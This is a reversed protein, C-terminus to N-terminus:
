PARRVSWGRYVFGTNEGKKVPPRISGTVPSCHRERRCLADRPPFQALRGCEFEIADLQLLSDFSGM